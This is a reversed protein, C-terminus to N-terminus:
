GLVEQAALRAIESFTHELPVSLKEASDLLRDVPTPSLRYQIAKIAETLNHSEGWGLYAPRNLLTLRELAQRLSREEVKTLGNSV